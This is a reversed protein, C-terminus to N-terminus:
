MYEEICCDKVQVDAVMPQVCCLMRPKKIMAPLQEQDVVNAENDVSKRVKGLHPAGVSSESGM